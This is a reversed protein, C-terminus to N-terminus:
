RRKLLRQGNVYIWNKENSSFAFAHREVRGDDFRLEMANARLTYRGQQANHTGSSVTGAQSSHSAGGGSRISFRGDHQMAIGRWGWAFASSLGDGTQATQAHHFFGDVTEGPAALVVFSLTLREVRGDAWRVEYDGPMGPKTASQWRGWREPQLRKSAAADFDEFPMGEPWGRRISGDTLLLHHKVTHSTRWTGSTVDLRMSPRSIQQALGVVQAKHLGKGPATAVAADGAGRRSGASALQAHSTSAGVALLLPLLAIWWRRPMPGM